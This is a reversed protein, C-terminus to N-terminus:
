WDMFTPQREIKRSDKEAEKKLYKFNENYIGMLSKTLTIELYRIRNLVIPFPLKGM